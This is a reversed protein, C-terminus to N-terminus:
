ETGTSTEGQEDQESESSVSKELLRLVRELLDMMERHRLEDLYYSTGTVTRQAEKDYQEILEERSLKKLNSYHEALGMSKM